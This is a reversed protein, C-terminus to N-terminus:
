IRKTIFPVLMEDQSLGGHWSELNLVGLSSDIVQTSLRPILVVDGLRHKSESYIPEHGFLGASIAQTSEIATLSDGYLTHIQAIADDVCGNQLHLHGLRMDGTLGLRMMQRLSEASESQLDIAHPAGAHGHDATFIFLTQGDQVSQRSVIDLLHKMQQKIEYHVYRNKAGYMHSLSDVAGVYVNLYCRQGVTEHLIEALRVWVDSHGGHAYGYGVGRHMVASLIGKGLYARHLLLHTAIHNTALHQAFGQVPTFNKLDDDSLVSGRPNVVATNRLMNTLTSYERLFLTTGLMGHTVPFAGTWLTPLAVATTSPAVSTIPVFGRGDTFQLIMDELEPDEAMLEHLYLYGLGDSLFVVVRQVDDLRDNGWVRSDLPADDSLPAGLLQGISHPINRISLGDYAPYVVEDAWDVPLNLLKRARIDTEIAQANQSLTFHTPM